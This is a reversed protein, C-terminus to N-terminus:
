LKSTAQWFATVLQWLLLLLLMIPSVQCLFRRFCCGSGGYPIRIFAFRGKQGRGGWFVCGSGAGSSGVPLGCPPCGAIGTVREQYHPVPRAKVSGWMNHREPRFEKAKFPIISIPLTFSVWPRPLPHSYNGLKSPPVTAILSLVRRSSIWVTNTLAMLCVVKDKVM